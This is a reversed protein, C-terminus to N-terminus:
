ASRLIRSRSIRESDHAFRWYAKRAKEYIPGPTLTRQEIRTVPAVKSFNGSSFIEDAALFDAHRLSKEIVEVGADRLLGIVRRRTIGDLFTGNTAPTYAVGDKALFINANALEAINGLTDNMLCNDFGRQTAEIMARANNPYLCGAKAEVPATESTPRRYPSLTIAVGTPAPLPSEYICLCWQTTEPDFRVGGAYGGGAWYMPRIYLQANEDFLRIGDKALDLWQDHSVFPRLCMKEASVNVRALHRDLDPAVGDFARAGDFVTSSLWAGHTRPGMIPPNGERWEGDFFTWTKSPAANSRIIEPM